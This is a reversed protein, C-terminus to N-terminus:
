GLKAGKQNKEIIGLPIQLGPHVGRPLHTFHKFEDNILKKNSCKQVAFQIIITLELRIPLM